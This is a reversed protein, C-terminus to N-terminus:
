LKKKLKLSTLAADIAPRSPPESQAGECRPRNGRPMTL